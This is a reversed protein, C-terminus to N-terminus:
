AGQCSHLLAVARSFEERVIHNCSERKDKQDQQGRAAQRLLLLKLVQVAFFQARHIEAM